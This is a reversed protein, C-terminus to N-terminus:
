EHVCNNVLILRNEVNQRFFGGVDFSFHELMGLRGHQAANEAELALQDLEAASGATHALHDVGHHAALVAQQAIIEIRIEAVDVIVQHAREVEDFGIAVQEGAREIDVKGGDGIAGILDDFHEGNVASYRQRQHHNGAEEAHVQVQGPH